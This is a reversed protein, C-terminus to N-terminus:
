GLLFCFLFLFLFLLFLLFLCFIRPSELGLPAAIGSPPLWDWFEVCVCEQGEPFEELGDM